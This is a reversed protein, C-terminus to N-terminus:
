SIIKYYVIGDLKRIAKSGRGVYHACYVNGLSDVAIGHGAGVDTKSWIENGNSDLKRIAKSGTGVDHACYVNGSSDVAIDIGNGVDTKSWIENGNGKSNDKQLNVDKIYAGIKYKGLGIGHDILSGKFM